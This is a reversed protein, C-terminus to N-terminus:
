RGYAASEERFTAPDIVITLGDWNSLVLRDGRVEMNTYPSDDYVHKRDRVRWVVEGESNVACVNRNDILGPPAETRVFLNPGVPVVQAIQGRFETTIKGATAHYIELRSGVVRYDGTKM